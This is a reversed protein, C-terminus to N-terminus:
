SKEQQFLSLLRAQEESTLGIGPMADATKIFSFGCACRQTGVPLVATCHPCEITKPRAKKAEAPATKGPAAPPPTKAAPKPAPKTVPRAAAPQKKPAEQPVVPAPVAVRAAPKMERARAIAQHAKQALKQQLTAPPRVPKTEKAKAKEPKKTSPAPTATAVREAAKKRAAEWANKRTAAVERKRRAEAEAHLDAIQDKQVKYETKTLKYEARAEEAHRAKDEDGPSREADAAAVEAAERTQHLRAKLYESYLEAEQLALEIAAYSDTTVNGDFVYGCACRSADAANDAACRPCTKTFISL